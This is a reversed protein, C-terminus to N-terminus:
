TGVSGLPMCTASPPRLLDSWTTRGRGRRLGLHAALICGIGWRYQPIEPGKGWLWGRERALFLFALEEFEAKSLREPDEAVEPLSLTVRGRNTNILNRMGDITPVVLSHCPMNSETVGDLRVTEPDVRKPHVELEDLRFIQQEDVVVTISQLLRSWLSEEIGCREHDMRTCTQTEFETRTSFQTQLLERQEGLRERRPGNGSSVRAPM